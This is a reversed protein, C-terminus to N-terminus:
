KPRPGRPVTPDVNDLFTVLKTNRMDGAIVVATRREAAAWRTLDAGFDILLAAMDLQNKAPSQQSALRLLPTYDGTNRDEDAPVGKELMARALHIHGMVVAHSLISLGNFPRVRHMNYQVCFATASECIEHTNENKNILNKVKLFDPLDFHYFSLSSQFLQSIEKTMEKKIGEQVSGHDMLLILYQLILENVERPLKVIFPTKLLQGTLMTSFAAASLQEERDQKQSDVWPTKKM